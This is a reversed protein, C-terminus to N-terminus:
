PGLDLAFFGRYRNGKPVFLFADISNAATSLTPVANGAWDIGNWWTVARSGTGDQILEIYFPKAEKDGNLALTRNGGLTVDWFRSQGIEFTVTAQDTATKFQGCNPVREIFM